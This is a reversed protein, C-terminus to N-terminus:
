MMVSASLSHTVEEKPHLGSAIPEGKGSRRGSSCASRSRNLGIALLASPVPLLKALDTQVDVDLTFRDENDEIAYRRTSLTLVGSPHQRFADLNICIDETPVM